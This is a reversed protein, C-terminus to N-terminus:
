RRSSRPPRSPRQGAKNQTPNPNLLFEPIAPKKPLPHRAGPEDKIGLAYRLSIAAHAAYNTIEETSFVEDKTYSQGKSRLHFMQGKDPDDIVVAHISTNRVKQIYGMVGQLAELATKADDNLKKTNALKKIRQLRNELTLPFVMIEADDMSMGLLVRLCNAIVHEIHSWRLTLEALKKYDADTLWEEFRFPSEM